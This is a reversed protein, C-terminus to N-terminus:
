AVTPRRAYPPPRRRRASHWRLCAPQWGQAPGAPHGGPTRSLDHPNRTPGAHWYAFETTQTKGIIVARAERVRAICAADASPRNDVYIDSGYGTPMDATDFTDKVMIPVGFPPGRYDAPTDQVREIPSEVLEWDLFCIAMIQAEHAEIAARCGAMVQEIRSTDNSMQQTLTRERLTSSSVMM